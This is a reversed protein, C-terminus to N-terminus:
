GTLHLHHSPALSTSAFPHDEEVSLTGDATRAGVQADSEISMIISGFKSLSVACGGVAFLMYGTIFCRAWENDSVLDGYGVSSSTVTAWYVSDLLGWGESYSVFCAGLALLVVVMFVSRLVQSLYKRGRSM